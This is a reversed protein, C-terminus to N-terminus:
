FILAKQILRLSSGAVITPFQPSTNGVCVVAAPPMPPKIGFPSGSYPLRGGGPPAAAEGPPAWGRHACALGGVAGAGLTSAPEGKGSAGGDPRPSFSRSVCRAHRGDEDEPCTLRAREPQPPAIRLRAWSLRLYSGDSPRPTATTAPLKANRRRPPPPPRPLLLLTDGSVRIHPPRGARTPREALLSSPVRADRGDRGGATAGGADENGKALRGGSGSPEGGEQGVRTDRQRACRKRSREDRSRSGRLPLPRSRRATAQPLCVVQAGRSGLRRM